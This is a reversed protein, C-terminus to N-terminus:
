SSTVATKTIDFSYAGNGASLTDTKQQTFKVSIKSYNLSFSDHPTSGSGSTSMNSILVNELTYVITDVWAGDTGSNTGVTLVAKKINTGALCKAHLVTTSLDSEKSCSIEHSMAKGSTRRGTIPHGQV